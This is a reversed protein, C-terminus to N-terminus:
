SSPEQTEGDNNDSFQEGCTPCSRPLFPVGQVYLGGVKRQLVPNGCKPCKIARGLFAWFCMIALWLVAGLPMPPAVYIFVAISVVAGIYVAVVKELVTM